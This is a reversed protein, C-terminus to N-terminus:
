LLASRTQTPWTVNRRLFSSLVGFSPPFDLGSGPDNHILKNQVLHVHSLGANKLLAIPLKHNGGDIFESEM